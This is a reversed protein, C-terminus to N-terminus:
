GRLAAARTKLTAFDRNPYKSTTVGALAVRVLRNGLRSTLLRIALAQIPNIPRDTFLHLGGLYLYSKRYREAILHMAERSYFFIHQGSDPTLYWWAQGEGDYLITSLIVAQPSGVFLEDLDKQPNSFHEVVEFATIVEPRLEDLRGSAVSFTRAFVPDAFKDYLWADCGCDRLLRCLVGAGGGYDVLRGGLGLVNRIATVSACAIISRQLAGTDLGSIADSYAEELWYPEVSQLSGCHGCLGFPVHHKELLLLEFKSEVSTSGCLRCDAM